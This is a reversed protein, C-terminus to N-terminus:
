SRVEHVVLTNTVVAGLHTGRVMVLRDGPQLSGNSKGWTEVFRALENVDRTPAGRLPIVGWYLCMQRLTSERDSVGIAPM